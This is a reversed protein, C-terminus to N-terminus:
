KYSMAVRMMMEETSYKNTFKINTQLGDKEDDDKMNKIVKKIENIQDDSLNNIIIWWGKFKSNLRIYM